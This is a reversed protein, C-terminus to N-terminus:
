VFNIITTVLVPLAAIADWFWRNNDVSTEGSDIVSASKVISAAADKVSQPVLSSDLIAQCVKGPYIHGVIEIAMSTTGVNLDKRYIRQYYIKVTEAVTYAGSASLAASLASDNTIHAAKDTYSVNINKSGVPIQM